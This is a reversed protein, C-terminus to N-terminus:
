NLYQCRQSFTLHSLNKVVYFNFDWGNVVDMNHVDDKKLKFNYFRFNQYFCKKEIVAHHQFEYLKEVFDLLMHGHCPKEYPCVYSCSDRIIPFIKRKFYLIHSFPIIYENDNRKFEDKFFSRLSYAYHMIKFAIVTNTFVQEINFPM